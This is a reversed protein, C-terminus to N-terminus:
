TTKNYKNKRRKTKRKYKRNHKTRGGSLEDPVADPVADPVEDTLNISPVFESNKTLDNVFITLTGICKSTLEDEYKQTIYAYNKLYIECLKYMFIRVNCIESGSCTAIPPVAMFEIDKGILADFLQYLDRTLQQPGNYKDPESWYLDPLWLDKTINGHTQSIFYNYKNLPEFWRYGNRKRNIKCDSSLNKYFNTSSNMDNMNFYCRGYDIIKAIYRTKIEITHSDNFVYKLIVHKDNPVTYLLVNNTHLDNHTFHSAFKGLPIFIQLFLQFIDINFGYESSKNTQIFQDLTLPNKMHQILVCYTIPFECSLNAERATHKNIFNFHMDNFANDPIDIPQTISKFQNYYFRTNYIGLAYTELFCPFKPVLNNIFYTGIYWEYYLNDAKPAQSSKLVCYAEYNDKSYTIENIFGNASPTGILRMSKINSKFDNFYQKLLDIHKGLIVCDGSEPCLKKLLKSQRTSVDLKHTINQMLPQPLKTRPSREITATKKAIPELPVPVLPVAITSVAKIPVSVADDPNRRRPPKRRRSKKIM